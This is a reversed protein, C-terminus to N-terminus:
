QQIGQLNEVDTAQILTAEPSHPTHPSDPLINLM